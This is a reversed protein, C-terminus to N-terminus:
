QAPQSADVSRVKGEKREWAVGRAWTRSKREQQECFRASKGRTLDDPEQAMDVAARAVSRRCPTDADIVVRGEDLRRADVGKSLADIRLPEDVIEVIIHLIEGARQQVDVADTM